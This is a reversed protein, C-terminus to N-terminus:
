LNIEGRQYKQFKDPEYFKDIPCYNGIQLHFIFRHSRIEQIDLKRMYDRETAIYGTRYIKWVAKIFPILYYENLTHCQETDIWYVIQFKLLHYIKLLFKM